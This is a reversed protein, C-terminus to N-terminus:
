YITYEDVEIGIIKPESEEAISKENISIVNRIKGDNGIFYCFKLLKLLNKTIISFLCSFYSVHIQLFVGRYL